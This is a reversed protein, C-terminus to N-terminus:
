TQFSQPTGILKTNRNGSKREELKGTRLLGDIGARADRETVGWGRVEAHLETKTLQKAALGLVADPDFKTGAKKWTTKAATKLDERWVEVDLVEVASYTLTQPDLRIRLPEPRTGNNNKAPIWVLDPNDSADYPAINVVARACSFLAKSDKGFNAADFGAAQAINATGTRAHALIVVGCDPSVDCALKRLTSITSRVDGDFGEGELVDGWPDVWLVDPPWERLTDRWKQENEDDGLNIFTDGQKELTTVRIHNALLGVQEKALGKSMCRTDIQWRYLDNESGIFLHRMPDTGTGMELFPLGLVQNRAINLALRSKGLGGQGFLAQVQGQAFLEGMIFRKPPLEIEVCEGWSRVTFGSPESGGAKTLDSRIGEVAMQIAKLGDAKELAAKAQRKLHADRIRTIHYGIGYLGGYEDNLKEAVDLGIAAETVIALPELPINSAVLRKVAGFVQRCEPQTFHEPTLGLGKLELLAKAADNILAGALSRESNEVPIFPSLFRRTRTRLKFNNAVM